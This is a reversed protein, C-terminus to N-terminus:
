GRALRPVERSVFPNDELVPAQIAKKTRSRATLAALTQIEIKGSGHPILCTANRLQMRQPTNDAANKKYVQLVNHGSTFVINEM